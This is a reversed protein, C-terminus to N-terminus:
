GSRRLRQGPLRWQRSGPTIHCSSLCTMHFEVIHPPRSYSLQYYTPHFFWALIAALVTVGWGGLFFVVVWVFCGITSVTSRHQLIPVISHCLPLLLYCDFLFVCLIMWVGFCCGGWVGHFYECYYYYYYYYLPNRSRGDVVCPPLM